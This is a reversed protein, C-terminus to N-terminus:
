FLIAFGAFNSDGEVRLLTGFRERIWHRLVDVIEPERQQGHFFERLFPIENVWARTAMSDMLKTRIQELIAVSNDELIEKLRKKDEELRDTTRSTKIARHVIQNKIAAVLSETM